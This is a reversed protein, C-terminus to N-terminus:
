NSFGLELGCVFSLPLQTLKLNLGIHYALIGTVWFVLIRRNLTLEEIMEDDRIQVNHWILRRLETVVITLKRYM